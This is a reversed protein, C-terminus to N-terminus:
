RPSTARATWTSLRMIRSAFGTETRRQVTHTLSQETQVQRRAGVGSTMVSIVDDLNAGPPLAWPARRFSTGGLWSQIPDMGLEGM